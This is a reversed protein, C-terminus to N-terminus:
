GPFHPTGMAVTVPDHFDPRQEPVHVTRLGARTAIPLSRPRM